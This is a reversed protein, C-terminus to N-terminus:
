VRAPSTPSQDPDDRPTAVGLLDDYVSTFRGLAVDSSFHATCRERAHVGFRCGPDALVRLTREAITAPIRDAPLQPVLWGTQGDQVTEVSGATETSVVPLGCAMAELVTMGLGEEHSTQLFVSADQYLRVLDDLGVDRHVVVRGSLGLNTVLDRVPRPLEGRGVLLLDPVADNRRVMEAYARVMRDLGKRTDGLRCVSLLHGDPRWPHDPPTFFSTDVGPAAKVVRGQNLSRVWALMTANEVLVADVGALARREARSTLRTMAGRWARAPLPQEVLQSAREWCARTAVQLVVPIGTGVVASAWAPSGAVVQILDYGRLVATLERRPRYRMFELEVANAGWHKASPGGAPTALSGRPWSGPAVLRRSSPDRSSTALTHVDVSYGEAAMLADHLWRSM